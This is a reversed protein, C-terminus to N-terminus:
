RMTRKLTQHLHDIANAMANTAQRHSAVMSTMKEEHQSLMRQMLRTQQAGHDPGSGVGGGIRFSSRGSLADRLGGAFTGPVIMENQHVFAFGSAPLSWSGVDFGGMFGEATALVSAGAAAGIAPAAPGAFPAVNGAVGAVTQGAGALIAKFANAVDELISTQGAATQAAARATAGMLTAATMGSETAIHGALIRAQNALWELSLKM